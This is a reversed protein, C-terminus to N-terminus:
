RHSNFSNNTTARNMEFRVNTDRSM